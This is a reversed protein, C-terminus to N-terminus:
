AGRARRLALYLGLLIAVGQLIGAAVLPRGYDGM